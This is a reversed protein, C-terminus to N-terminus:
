KGRSLCKRTDNIERAYSISKKKDVNMVKRKTIRKKEDEKGKYEWDKRQGSGKRRVREGKGAWRGQGENGM